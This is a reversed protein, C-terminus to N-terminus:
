KRLNRDIQAIWENFEPRSPAPISHKIRVTTPKVYEDTHKKAFVISKTVKVRDIFNSLWNM